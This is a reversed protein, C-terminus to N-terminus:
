AVKLQFSQVINDTLETVSQSALLEIFNDFKDDSLRRDITWLKRRQANAMGHQGRRCRPVFAYAALTGNPITAQVLNRM